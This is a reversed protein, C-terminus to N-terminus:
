VDREITKIRLETDNLKKSCFSILATAEEFLEASKELPLEPDEMEEAIKSIRAM